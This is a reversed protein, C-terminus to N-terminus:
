PQKLELAWKEKISVLSRLIHGANEAQSAHCRMAVIREEIFFLFIM